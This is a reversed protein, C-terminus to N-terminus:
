LKKRNQTNIEMVSRYLLEVDQDIDAKLDRTLYKTYGNAIDHISCRIDYCRDGRSIIHSIVTELCEIRAEANRLRAKLDLREILSMPM